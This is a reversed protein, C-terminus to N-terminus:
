NDDIVDLSVLAVNESFEKQAPTLSALFTQAGGAEFCNVVHCINM